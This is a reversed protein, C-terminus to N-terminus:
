LDGWDNTIPNKEGPYGDCIKGLDENSGNLFFQESSLRIVATEPSVYKGSGQVKIKDRDM